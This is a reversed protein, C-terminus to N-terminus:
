ATRTARLPKCAGAQRRRFDAAEPRDCLRDVAALEIQRAENVPRGLVRVAGQSRDVADARPSGIDIEEEAEAM